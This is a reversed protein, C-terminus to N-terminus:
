LVCCPWREEWTLRIIKEAIIADNVNFQTLIGFAKWGFNHGRM